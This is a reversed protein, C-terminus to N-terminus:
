GARRTGSSVGKAEDSSTDAGDEDSTTSGKSEPGGEDEAGGESEPGGEDESEPGAQDKAKGEKSAAGSAEDESELKAREGMVITGNVQGGEKLALTRARVDGEVVATEELILRRRALIGGEVRGRVQAEEAEVGKLVSGTVSVDVRPARVAGDVKGSIVFADSGVKDESASLDGEVSGSEALEIGGARVDGSIRGEIRIRGDVVCDGRIHMQKSILSTTSSRSAGSPARPTPTAEQDKSKKGLVLKGGKSHNLRPEGAAQM